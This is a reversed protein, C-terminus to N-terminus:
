WRGVETKRSGTKGVERGESKRVDRKRSGSMGVERCVSMRVGRSGVDSKGVKQCGVETKWVVAVDYSNRPRIRELEAMDLQLGLPSLQQQMMEYVPKLDSFPGM